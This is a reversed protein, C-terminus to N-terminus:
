TGREPQGAAFVRLCLEEVASLRSIDRAPETYGTVTSFGPKVGNSFPNKNRSTRSCVSPGGPATHRCTATVYTFLHLFPDLDM